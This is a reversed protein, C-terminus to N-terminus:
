SVRPGARDGARHRRIESARQGFHEAFAHSFYTTSTFGCWGAVEAVSSGGVGAFGVGALLSYALELRRVLIHRPVSTDGAAFVRSLQRTSIGIANAVEEAGLDPDTLHDEIYSKAAARHAVAQAARRGAILVAVLDLLAQEDAPVSAMAQGAMRALARAYRDGRPGDAFSAVSLLASGAPGAPGAPWGGHGPVRVALVQRPVRVVLEDLGRAFGRAFPRDADCAVVTGARLAETGGAHRFWSDGRVSLYVAVADSPSRRIVGASREVVHATGCVRALHVTALQLNRETAALASPAHVRLGILASANHSEWLEVRRAEPLGVTSFVSVSPAPRM